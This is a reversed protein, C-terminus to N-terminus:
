AKRPRAVSILLYTRCHPYKGMAGVVRGSTADVLGSGKRFPLPMMSVHYTDAPTNRSTLLVIEPVTTPLGKM